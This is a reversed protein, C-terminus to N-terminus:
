EQGERIGVDSIVKGLRAIESKITAAFEDPSNGVAELGNSLLRARTEVARPFRAVVQNLKRIIAVPTKAPAFLGNMSGAEFGPLNVAVTPLGPFLPSPQLSAVALSRLRGATIHPATASANGFMLQVQGGIIATVTPGTGKFPIRVINVGAMSKFLEGALHNATGALGSGYNLEGLGTRALAILEKVSKAPM